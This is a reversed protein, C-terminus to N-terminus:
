SNVAEITNKNQRFNQGFRLRVNRNLKRELQVPGFSRIGSDSSEEFANEAKILFGNFFLLGDVDGDSLTFM